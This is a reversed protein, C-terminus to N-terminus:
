VDLPAVAARRNALRNCTRFFENPPQPRLERTTWSPGECTKGPRDTGSRRVRLTRNSPVGSRQAGNPPVPSVLASERTPPTPGGAKALRRPTAQDSECRVIWSEQITRARAGPYGQREGARSSMPGWVHIRVVIGCATALPGTPSRQMRACRTLPQRQTWRAASQSPSRDVWSGLAAGHDAHSRRKLRPRIDPATATATSDRAASWRATRGAGAAGTVMRQSTVSSIYPPKMM